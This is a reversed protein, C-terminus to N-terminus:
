EKENIGNNDCLKKAVDFILGIGSKEPMFTYLKILDQLTGCVKKVTTSATMIKKRNYSSPAIYEQDTYYEFRYWKGKPSYHPKVYIKYISNEFGRGLGILGIFESDKNLKNLLSKIKM